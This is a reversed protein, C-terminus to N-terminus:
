LELIRRISQRDGETTNPDDLLRRLERENSLLEGASVVKFADRFRELTSISRLDFGYKALLATYKQKGTSTFRLSGNPGVLVLGRQTQWFQEPLNM